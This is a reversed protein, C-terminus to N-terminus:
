PAANESGALDVPPLKFTFKLWNESQEDATDVSVDLNELQNTKSPMRFYVFGAVSQRPKLITDVLEMNAFHQRIRRNVGATHAASGAITAPWFGIALPGTALTWAAAKGAYESTAAQDAVQEGYVAQLPVGALAANVDIQRIRRIASSNNDIRMLLPLIGHDALDSDFAQLSKKRSAFEEISVSVGEQEQKITPQRARLLDPYRM